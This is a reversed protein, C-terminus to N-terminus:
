AEGVAEEGTDDLRVVRVAAADSANYKPRRIYKFAAKPYRVIRVADGQNGGLCHYHSADDGIIFTVHGGGSREKIAIDGFMAHGPDVPDGISAYKLARLADYGAPIQHGSQKLCYGVFVACWPMFDETYFGAAEKNLYKAWGLIAPNNNTGTAELIGYLEVAAAIHKMKEHRLFKYPEPLVLKEPM